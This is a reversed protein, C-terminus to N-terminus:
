KKSISFSGINLAFTEFRGKQDKTSKFNIKDDTAEALEDSITESLSKNKLLKMKAYEKVTMTETDNIAGKNKAVSDEERKNEALEEELDLPMAEADEQNIIRNQAKKDEQQVEDVAALTEAVPIEELAVVKKEPKKDQDAYLPEAPLNLQNPQPLTELEEEISAKEFKLPKSELEVGKSQTFQKPKYQQDKNTNIAFFLLLIAAVAAAYRFLPLLIVKNRKLEEKNKYVLKEGEHLKTKQYNSRDTVFSKNRNLQEFLAKDEEKLQGELEAVLLYDWQSLGTEEERKLQELMGYSPESKESINLQPLDHGELELEPHILLFAEMEESLQASLNGEIYDLYYEEYNDKNIRM